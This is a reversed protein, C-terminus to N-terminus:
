HAELADSKTSVRRENSKQPVNRKRYDSRRDPLNIRGQDKTCIQQRLNLFLNPSHKIFSLLSSTATERNQGIEAM